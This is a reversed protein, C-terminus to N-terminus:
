TRGWQNLECSELIHEIVRSLSIWQLGGVDLVKANLLVQNLQLPGADTNGHLFVFESRDASVHLLYDDLNQGPAVIRWGLREGELREFRWGAPLALRAQSEVYEILESDSKFTTENM